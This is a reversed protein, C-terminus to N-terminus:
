VGVYLIDHSVSVMLAEIGYDAEAAIINDGEVLYIWEPFKDLLNIFNEAVGARYRTISKQGPITNIIIVDGERFGGTATGATKTVDIKMQQRTTVNHIIMSGIVGTQTWGAELRIICGTEVDGENIVITQAIDRYESMVLEPAVVNDTPFDFKLMPDIGWFPVENSANSGDDNAKRFYPDPCIVSIVTYCRSNFIVPENSEVYGDIWSNRHDCYFILRVKKKIPFFKYSQRRIREIDLSDTHFWDYFALSLTIQRAPMRTSNYISGDASSLDITRIDVKGPGAGSLDYLLFGSKEPNRLETTLLDGRHNIIDVKNIM